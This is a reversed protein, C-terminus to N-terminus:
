GALAVGAAQFVEAPTKFGLCKKPRNNLWREVSLIENKSITAIDTKKPFFRRVLGPINEVTGREWSHYPECLWSCTGLVRNTRLHEANESGNDYTISRRMAKPVRSLWRTLAISMRAFQPCQRNLEAAGERVVLSGFHTLVAEERFLRLHPDVKRM